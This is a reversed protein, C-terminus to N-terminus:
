AAHQQRKEEVHYQRRQTALEAHGQEDLWPPLWLEGQQKQLALVRQKHDRGNKGLLAAHWPGWPLQFVRRHKGEVVYYDRRPKLDEAIMRIERSGLGLAAYHKRLGDSNAAENPLFIHTQINALLRDAHPFVAFDGPSHFVLGVSVVKKRMTASGEEIWGSLLENSAASWGEDFMLLTPRGTNMRRELAHIQAQLVPTHVAAPRKFVQEMDFTLWHSDDTPSYVGDLIAGPGSGSYYGLAARLGNDTTQLQGLFSTMTRHSIPLTALMKLADQIAIRGESSLEEGRMQVLGECFDLAWAYEAEQDIHALPAYRMADLDFFSGGCALTPIIGGADRDFLFVQSESYQLQGMGMANLLTTKGASTPGIVTFHLEPTFPFPTNGTTKCLILPGCNPPYLPSPHQEHGRWPTSLPLLRVLHETNLIPKRVNSTGHGPLSGQFAPEFNGTETTAAFGLRNLVAVVQGAWTEVQAEETASLVVVLTYYGERAAGAQIKTMARDISAVQNDADNNRRVVEPNNPDVKTLGQSMKWAIRKPNYANVYVNKNRQQELEKLVKRSSLFIFRQSLRIPMPLQLLVDLMQPSTGSVQSASGSSFGFVGVVRVHRGDVIARETDVEVAGIAYNLLMGTPAIGMNKNQGTVCYTLFKQLEAAPLPRLPCGLSHGVRETIQATERQFIALLTRRSLKQGIKRAGFFFRSVHREVTSPPLWTITLTLRNAYHTDAAAFIAAREDAVLQSTPEPCHTVTPPIVVASRIAEVQLMWGSSLGALDRNIQTALSEMALFDAYEQDPGWMEWAALFAGDRLEMVGPAVMRSYNLYDPFGPQARRTTM